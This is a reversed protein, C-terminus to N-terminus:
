MGCLIRSVEDNSLDVAVLEYALELMRSLNRKLDSIEESRSRCQCALDIITYYPSMKKTLESEILQLM